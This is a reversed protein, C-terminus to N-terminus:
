MVHHSQKLLDFLYEPALDLGNDWVITDFDVKFQSFKKTDILEKLIPRSDHYIAEKLDIIGNEDNNFTVHIKYDEVYEASVIWVM